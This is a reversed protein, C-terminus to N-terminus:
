DMSLDDVFSAERTIRDLPVNLHYAIIARIREWVVEASQGERNDWFNANLGVVARSLGGLTSWDANIALKPPRVAILVVLLVVGMSLAAIPWTVDVTPDLWVWPMACLGIAIAAIGAFNGVFSATPWAPNSWELEPIRLGLDNRLASWRASRDGVPFLQMLSTTPRLDRRELNTMKMLSSRVRYFASATACGARPQENVRKAVCDYLNGVTVIEGAEADPISIGFAEEIEMVIEVGDLGM